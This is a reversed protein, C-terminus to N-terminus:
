NSAARPTFVAMTGVQDDTFRWGPALLAGYCGRYNSYQVRQM